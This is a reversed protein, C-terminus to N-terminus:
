LLPPPARGEMMGVGPIASAVRSLSEAELLVVPISQKEGGGELIDGSQLLPYESQAPTALEECTEAVNALRAVLRLNDQHIPAELREKCAMDKTM